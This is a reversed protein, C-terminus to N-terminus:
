LRRAYHIQRAVEVFGAAPYLTQGAQNQAMTEIMAFSLGLGRFYDLAHEILAKGLGARRAESTVALNPIRGKGVPPDVRTTIYGLIREGGAAESAVAVFVGSPNAALDEDLHRSKRWAWDHGHLVGLADELNRELTVESFSEITIRKLDELDDPRAVRITFEM